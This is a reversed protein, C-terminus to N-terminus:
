RRARVAASSRDAARPSASRLRAAAGSTVAEGAAESLVACVREKSKPDSCKGPCLGEWEGLLPFVRHWRASNLPFPYFRNRATRPFGPRPPQVGPVALENAPETLHKEARSRSSWPPLSIQGVYMQADSRNTSTVRSQVLVALTLVVAGVAWEERAWKM